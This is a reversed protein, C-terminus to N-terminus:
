GSCAILAGALLVTNFIPRHLMSVIIDDIETATRRTLRMIVRTLILDVLKAAVLSLVIILLVQLARHENLLTNLERLQDLLADRDM